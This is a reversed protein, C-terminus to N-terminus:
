WPVGEDRLIVALLYVAPVTALVYPWAMMLDGTLAHFTAAGTSLVIGSGAAVSSRFEIAHM